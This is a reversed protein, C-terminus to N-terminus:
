RTIAYLAFCIGPVYGFLTLVLCKWFDLKIGFKIYVCLPPLFIALLIDVCTAVNVNVNGM